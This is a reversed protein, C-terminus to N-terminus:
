YIRRPFTCMRAACYQRIMQIAPLHQRLASHSGEVVAALPFKFRFFTSNGKQPNCIIISYLITIYSNILLRGIKNTISYYYRVSKRFTYLMIMILQLFSVRANNDTQQQQLLQQTTCTTYLLLIILLNNYYTQIDTHGHRGDHIRNRSTFDIYEVAVWWVWWMHKYISECPQIPCVKFICGTSPSSQASSLRGWICDSGADHTYTYTFVNNTHVKKNINILKPSGKTQHTTLYAVHM